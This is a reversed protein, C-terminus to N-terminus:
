SVAGTVPQAAGNRHFPGLFAQTAVERAESMPMGQVTVPTVIINGLATMHALLNLHQFIM